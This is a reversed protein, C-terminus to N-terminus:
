EGLLVTEYFENAKALLEKDRESLTAVFAARDAKNIGALPAMNELSQKLGAGTGGYQVYQLLYKQAAEKDGYRMAQKIYYLANSKASYNSFSGEGKNKSLWRGKLSLFENYAVEGPDVRYVLANALSKGYGRSPKGTLAVYEDRMGVSNALHEWPDRISRLRTVDPFVTRQLAAEIVSKVPGGAVQALKNVPSKAMDLAIEKVSMKGNLYARVYRPAEDAGFWELYDGLVGLRDFYVVKGDEDRGFIIHPKAKVSEPLDDEEDAFLIHNYAALMATFATTKLAFKGINYAIIPSRIAIGVMKRGVLEATVGDEIANRILRTQRRFNVEQFSWFPAVRDRMWQGFVSVEDYAGLLDNSLKFARDELSKLAMVEDRLSAGFNAPKASTNGDAKMQELYSKYNAYRLIAERFDTSIRAARWVRRAAAVPLEVVSKLGAKKREGEMLNWFLDLGQIDGINEAVQMNDYLGGRDLWAQLDASPASKRVLFQYLESFAEPAKKFGVPNGAFAADADGSLNRANYKSFRRPSLLQWVKWKRTLSKIGNEIFGDNRERSLHDLTQAVEKPIALQLRKGGLAMIKRVADTPVKISELNQSMAENVIREPLTWAHFMSNGERPQWPVYGEPMHQQWESKYQGRLEASKDYTKRIFDLLKFIRTDYLMQAMVEHEAQLYNANIDLNTGKRRRLFSRSIPARLKKGTGKVSADEVTMYALVQHRFYDKRGVPPEFGISDKAAAAYENRVERLLNTRDEIAKQVVPDAKVAADVQAKDVSLTDPDFGFSLEAAEDEGKVKEQTKTEETLDDLLLKRTFLDYQDADMDITVGRLNQVAQDSAVGKGSTRIRNLDFRLKAFESARPLHEFERLVQNKITVLARSVKALVSERGLGQKAKQYRKETDPDEFTVGHGKKTPTQTPSPGGLPLAGEQSSTGIKEAVKKRLEERVSGEKKAPAPQTKAEVRGLDGLKVMARDGSLKTGDPQVFAFGTEDDAAVITGQRRQGTKANTWAVRDGKAFKQEDTSTPAPQAAPTPQDPTEEVKTPPPNTLAPAETKIPDSARRPEFRTVQGRRGVQSLGDNPDLLILVRHPPKGTRKGGTHTLADYGAKRLQEAITGFMEVYESTPVGEQGSVESIESRLAQIFEEGTIGPKKAQESIFDRFEEYAGQRVAEVVSPTVPQELDLVQDVKINAEYISPKGGRRSRAKAYGEAISPDDTLYVGMGFLSEHNTVLPDLSDATLGETGTGHYWTMNNSQQAIEEPTGKRPGVKDEVASATTPQEQGGFQRQVFARFDDDSLNQTTKVTDIVAREDLGQAQERLFTQRDLQPAQGEVIAETAGTSAAPAEAPAAPAKAKKGKRKAVFETPDTVNLQPAPTAEVSPVVEAVPTPVHAAEEVRVDGPRVAPTAAAQPATKDTGKIDIASGGAGLGVGMLGGLGVAEQMQKDFAVPDGIAKRQIVDQVGEEAAEQVGTAAVKGAGVAVKKVRSLTQLDAAGLIKKLVPPLPALATFLEGADMAVLANNLWFTRRAASQADEESAGRRLSEEYTQGAEMASELPRSALAGGVSAALATGVAGLGAVGALGAGALGGGVAAPALALPFALSRVGKTKLYEPNVLSRLGEFEPGEYGEAVQQLEKANQRLREALDKKGLMNATAAASELVDGFGATFNRTTPTQIDGIERVASEAMATGQEVTAPRTGALPSVGKLPNLAQAREPTLGFPLSASEQAPPMPEISTTPQEIARQLRATERADDQVAPAGLRAKQYASYQTLLDSEASPTPTEMPAAIGYKQRLQENRGSAGSTPAAKTATTPASLGYKKRLADLTTAM